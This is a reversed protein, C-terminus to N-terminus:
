GMKGRVAAIVKPAVFLGLALWVLAKADPKLIDPM